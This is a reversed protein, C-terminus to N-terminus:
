AADKREASDKPKAAAQAQRIKKSAEELALLYEPPSDLALGLVIACDPPLRRIGQEYNSVRSKSLPIPLLPIKRSLEELSLGLEQRRARIREGILAAMEDRLEQEADPTKTRAM